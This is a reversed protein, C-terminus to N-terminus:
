SFEAQMRSMFGTPTEQLFTIQLSLSVLLIASQKPFQMNLTHKSKQIKYNDELLRNEKASGQSLILSIRWFTALNCPTEFILFSPWKFLKVLTPAQITDSCAIM